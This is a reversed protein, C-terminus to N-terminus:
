RARFATLALSPEYRMETLRARPRKRVRYEAFASWLAPDLLVLKAIRAVM